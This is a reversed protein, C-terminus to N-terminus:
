KRLSDKVGKTVVLICEIMEEKTNATKWGPIKFEDCMEMIRGLPLSEMYKRSRDPDEVEVGRTTNKKIFIERAKNNKNYDDVFMGILESKAMKHYGGVRIDDNQNKKSTGKENKKSKKVSEETEVDMHYIKRKECVVNEKVTNNILDILEIKKMKSYGKLGRTKCMEKLSVLTM